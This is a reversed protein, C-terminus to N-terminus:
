QAPLWASLVKASSAILVASGDVLISFLNADAGLGTGVRAITKGDTASLVHLNGTSDHVYVAGGLAALAQYSNGTRGKLGDFSWDPSTQGTSAQASSGRPKLSWAKVSGEDELAFWQSGSVVLGSLASMAQTHSIEGRENVCAARQRFTTACLGLGQVAVWQPLVDAIREVDNVGRVQALNVEWAVQGNSVNVGIAKGGPLGVAAITGTLAAVAGSGRLSLAPVSRALAWRRRGTQEDLGVLRGDATLVVFVGGVSAPETRMEAPLPNRWRVGGTAADLAVAETGQVLALVTQKDASVGLPAQVLGLPARWLVAGKSAQYAVVEKGQAVLVQAGSAARLASPPANLDDLAVSWQRAVVASPKFDVLPAPPVKGSSCAAIGAAFASLLMLHRALRPIMAILLLPNISYIAIRFVFSV